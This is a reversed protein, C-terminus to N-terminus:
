QDLRYIAGAVAPTISSITITSPPTDATITYTGMSSVQGSVSKLNTDLNWSDLTVSTTSIASFGFWYLGPKLTIGAVTTTFLAGASITGTTVNFYQTQGDQSYCTLHATGNAATSPAYISIKNVTITEYVRYLALYMVTNGGSHALTGTALGGMIPQPFVVTSSGFINTLASGNVAPLKASADLKVINNASTGSNVSIVGSAITLGSTAADTLGQVVGLVTYSANSAAPNPIFAPINSSNLSIIQGNTGSIATLNGSADKYYMSGTADTGSANIKTGTSITKNTLTQTTDTGVITTSADPVTLTRTTGTTVGSVGFAVKKTTDTSDKITFLSSLVNLLNSITVGKTTTNATDVIPVIDASVPTTYNTLQSIKQNM